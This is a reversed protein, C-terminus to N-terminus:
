ERGLQRGIRATVWGSACGLHLGSTGVSKRRVAADPVQFVICVTHNHPSRAQTQAAQVHGYNCSPNKLLPEPTPAFVYGEKDGFAGDFAARVKRLNCDNVGLYFSHLPAATVFHGGHHVHFLDELGRGGDRSRLDREDGIRGALTRVDQGM